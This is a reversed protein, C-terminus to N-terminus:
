LRKGPGAGRELIGRTIQLWVGMVIDAALEVDRMSVRDEVIAEAIDAKFNERILQGFEAPSQSSQVM